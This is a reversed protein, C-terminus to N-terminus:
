KVGVNLLSNILTSALVTAILGLIWKKVSKMEECVSLLKQTMDSISIEHKVLTMNMVQAQEKIGIQEERVYEYRDQALKLEVQRVRESLNECTKAASECAKRTEEDMVTEEM